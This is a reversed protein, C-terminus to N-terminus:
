TVHRRVSIWERVLRSRSDLFMIVQEIRLKSFLIILITFTSLAITLGLAMHIPNIFSLDPGETATGIVTKFGENLYNVLTHAVITGTLTQRASFREYYVGFVLGMIGSFVVMVAATRVPFVGDELWTQIPWVIHWIGFLAASVLIGVIPGRWKTFANQVLGRFLSEEYVANVVAFFFFYVLMEPSLLVIFQLPLSPDIFFHYLVTSMVMTSLYITFGTIVGVLMQAHMNKRNIGLVTGVEKPRVKYFFGVLIVLSLVKSLVINTWLVDLNLVFIDLIRLVTGIFLMIASITILGMKVVFKDKNPQETKTVSGTVTITIVEM